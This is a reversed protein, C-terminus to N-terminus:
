WQPITEREYSGGLNNVQTYHLALTYGISEVYFGGEGVEEERGGDANEEEYYFVFGVVNAEM